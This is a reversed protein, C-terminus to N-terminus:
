LHLQLQSFKWLCWLHLINSTKIFVSILSSAAAIITEMCSTNFACHSCKCACSCILHSKLACLGVLRRKHVHVLWTKYNIFDGWNKLRPAEPVETAATSRTHNCWTRTETKCGPPLWVISSDRLEWGEKGGEGILSPLAQGASISDSDTTYIHPPRQIPSPSCHLLPTCLHLELCNWEPGRVQHRRHTLTHIQLLAKWQVQTHLHFSSCQM